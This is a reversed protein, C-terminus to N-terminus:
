KLIYETLERCSAACLVPHYPSIEEVSGYGYVAWAADIGCDAAGKMDDMRDGVMLVKKNQLGYSRLIYSVVDSKTDRETDMSAGVVAEFYRTMDHENLIPEVVQTPKSTATFVRIGEKKLKSLMEYAGPYPTCEHSGKVAYSKRYLRVAEEIEAETKFFDAYTKRLPPGLYKRLDAGYYDVGMIQLTEEITHIIGPASDLLTGDVDFLIVEYKGM